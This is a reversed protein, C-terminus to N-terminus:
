GSGHINRPLSKGQPSLGFPVGGWRHFPKDLNKNYKKKKTKQVTEEKIILPRQSLINGEKDMSTVYSYKKHLDIGYYIM